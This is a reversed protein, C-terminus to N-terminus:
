GAPLTARDWRRRGRWVVVRGQEPVKAAAPRPYVVAPFPVAAITAPVVAADAAPLPRWPSRVISSAAAPGGCLPPPFRFAHVPEAAAFVPPSGIPLM